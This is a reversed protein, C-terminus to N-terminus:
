IRQHALLNERGDNGAEGFGRPTRLSLFDSSHPDGLDEAL